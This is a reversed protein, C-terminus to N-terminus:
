DSPLYSPPGSWTRRPMPLGIELRSGSLGTTLVLSGRLSAIRERISRPGLNHATLRALDYRGHFPFGVGDDSLAIDVRDPRVALEVWARQARAHRGANNLGEQVLRYIHDGLTRPVPAKADVALECSLRWQWEARRLLKQLVLALDDGTAMAETPAPSLDGIWTRLEGQEVAILAQVDRLRQRAAEIDTDLLRSVAQLQLALGTLSQLIGDHLEHALRVREHETAAQELRARSFFHRIDGFVQLAVGELVADSECPPAQPTSPM